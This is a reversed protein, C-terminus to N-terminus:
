SGEPVAEYKYKITKKQTKMNTCCYPPFLNLFNEYRKGKRPLHSPFSSLQLRRRSCEIGIGVNKKMKLDQLHM